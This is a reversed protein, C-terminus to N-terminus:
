VKSSLNIIGKLLNDKHTDNHVYMLRSTDRSMISYILLAETWEMM